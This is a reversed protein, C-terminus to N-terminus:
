VRFGLQQPVSTRQGDAGCLVRQCLLGLLHFQTNDTALAALVLLLSHNSVQRM